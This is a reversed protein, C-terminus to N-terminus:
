NTKIAVENTHVAADEVCRFSLNNCGTDFDGKGRTGMMYRTCYQDTCMFSGGREVREPQKDGPDYSSSPGKPNRAVSNTAFQSYYDPRYWDSCWQWVNGAMDFLGYGNSPFQGIPAVGAYGDDGTDEVPFTGQYTNAMYKGGPHFKDGWWYSKGSLGGRAAFEWEAETPLRKGAWKAYAEADAYAVQLVPYNQKGRLNSDPGTPHRWNAGQVYRWWQYYNNLPVPQPTPTFVMSGAVLNEPPATPFEEKTPAREAVTIYGTALVFKAFQENSIDNTDMWFGDVYVRHIPQADNISNMTAPTCVGDSPARSGMSFEGGPIWVMGAPALGPPTTKNPITPEFTPANTDAARVVTSAGVLAVIILRAFVNRLPRNM